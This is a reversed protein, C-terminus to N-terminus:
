ANCHIQGQKFGVSAGGALLTPKQDRWALQSTGARPRPCSVRLCIPSDRKAADACRVAAAVTGLGSLDVMSRCSSCVSKVRCTRSLSTGMKQRHAERSSTGTRQFRLELSVALLECLFSLRQHPPLPLVFLLGASFMKDQGREVVRHSLKSTRKVLRVRQMEARGFRCCTQFKKAHRERAKPM